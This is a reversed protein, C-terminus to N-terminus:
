HHLRVLLRATDPNDPDLTLARMLHTRAAERNGADLEMTALVHHARAVEEDASLAALCTQRAVKPKAARRELDCRLAMLGPAGPYRALGQRVLQTASAQDDAHLREDVHNFLELYAPEDEVTIKFPAARKPLGAEGAM